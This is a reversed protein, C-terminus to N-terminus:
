AVERHLRGDQLRLVQPVGALSEPRHSAMLVVHDRAVRHLTDLVSAASVADLASTPEDVLLVPRRALLARALALRQAQGGSLSSGAETVPTDLGAPLARLEALIGADRCAAVVEEDDRRAGALLNERWTATFLVPHQSVVAVDEPRLPTGDLRLTGAAPPLLGLLLDFLTSKGAGSAGVVATLGGSSATLHLDTLVPAPAGPYAFSLGAVELRHGPHAGREPAARYPTEAGARSATPAVGDPADAGEEVTFARLATLGPVATLGLFGAHWHRSLDRLPRFAESALLLVLYLELAPPRDTAAHLVATMTAAVVGAQVALDLVGTEALSVRMFRETAVRLGESREGLRRRTAAVDGLLRLTAMGRLSELLDDALAEYSDWHELGRRASVRKWALPGLLAALVALGVCLGAPPHLVVLALVVLPSVLFVQAAAPVYRVVYADIGDVGDVLTAALSGDRAGPDHLRDATLAARMARERVRRRISGGLRSAAATQAVSLALRVLAIGVLALLSHTVTGAHEQLVAAFCVAVAVAQALHTLGVLVLLGVSAALAAPEALAERWLARVIM